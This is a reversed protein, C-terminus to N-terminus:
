PGSRSLRSRTTRRSPRTAPRRRRRTPPRATRTCISRRCGSPTTRKQKSGETASAPARAPPRRPSPDPSSSSSSSLSPQTPTRYLCSRPRRNSRKCCRSIAQCARARSARGVRDPARRPLQGSWGCVAVSCCFWTRLRCAGRRSTLRCSMLRSAGQTLRHSATCLVARARGWSSPAKLIFAARRRARGELRSAARGDLRGDKWVL